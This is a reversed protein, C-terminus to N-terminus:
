LKDRETGVVGSGFGVFSFMVCRLLLSLLLIINTYMTHVHQSVYEGAM